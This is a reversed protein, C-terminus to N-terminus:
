QIPSDGVPEDRLHALDMSYRVERLTFTGRNDEKTAGDTTWGAGEYFRRANSNVDLVWLTASSFGAGVLSDVALGLLKSGIGERWHHPHVYIATVEGVGASADHDRSPCFHVFGLIQAADFAVLAGTAPLDVEGVIQRWSDCRDSVSLGDLYEDPIMGRYAVQWASVHMQAISGEDGPIAERFRVADNESSLALRRTQNWGERRGM